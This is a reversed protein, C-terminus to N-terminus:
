QMYMCVTQKEGGKKGTKKVAVGASGTDAGTKSEKHNHNNNNNNDKEEGRVVQLEEKGKLVSEAQDIPEVLNLKNEDGIEGIEGIGSELEEEDVSQHLPPFLDLGGTVDTLGAEVSSLNLSGLELDDLSDLNDLDGETNPPNPKNETEREQEKEDTEDNEDKENVVSSEPDSDNGIDKAEDEVEDDDHDNHNHLNNASGGAGRVRREGVHRAICDDEVRFLCSLGM